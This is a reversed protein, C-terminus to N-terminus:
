PTAEEVPGDAFLIMQRKDPQKSKKQRMKKIQILEYSIGLINTIPYNKEAIEKQLVDFYAEEPATLVITSYLLGSKEESFGGYPRLTAKYRLSMETEGCDTQGTAQQGM